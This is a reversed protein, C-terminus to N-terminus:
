SKHEGILRDTESEMVNLEEVTNHEFGALHLLAHVMLRCLEDHESVGMDAAQEVVRNRSIYIEGQVGEVEKHNRAQVQVKNNYNFSLVDTARDQGRFNLNLDQLKADNAIVLNIDGIICHSDMVRAALQKLDCCMAETLKHEKHQCLIQLM